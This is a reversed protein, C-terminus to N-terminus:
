ATTRANMKNLGETRHNAQLETADKSATEIAVGIDVIHRIYCHINHSKICTFQIGKM